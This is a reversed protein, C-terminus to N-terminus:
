LEDAMTSIETQKVVHCGWLVGFLGNRTVFKQFPPIGYCFSADVWAAQESYDALSEAWAVEVGMTEGFDSIFFVRIRIVPSVNSVNGIDLFWLFMGLVGM